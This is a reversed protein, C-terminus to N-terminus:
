QSNLSMCIQNLNYSDLKTSHLAVVPALLHPLTIDCTACSPGEEMVVEAAACEDVIGSCLTPTSHTLGPQAAGM